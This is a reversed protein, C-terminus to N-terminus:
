LFKNVDAMTRGALWSNASWNEQSVDRGFWDPPAFAARSAEDPFEVEVMLLGELPGHFADIEAKLGGPLPLYHRTKALGRVALPRLLRFEEATLPVTIEEKRTMDGADLDIKKTLEFGGGIRRLRLPSPGASLYHQEIEKKVAGELDPLRRVLFSLENELM